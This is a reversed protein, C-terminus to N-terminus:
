AELLAHSRAFADIAASVQDTHTLFPAHGASDIQIFQAAPLQEAAAQVAQPSVLRDRRGAIWLTPMQMTALDNRLDLNQLISLGTLLAAASPEGRLYLQDRLFKLEERLHESGQAELMLFRDLTRRWNNQLEDAFAQFVEAAMGHPWDTAVTFRPSAALMILGCCKQPYRQALQLAILGGLSWGLWLAREFRQALAEVCDSLVLVDAASHGHGPLDVIHLTYRNALQESLPAFAGGHMGWGHLMVLAPGSGRTEVHM